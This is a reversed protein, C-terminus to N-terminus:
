ADDARHEAPNRHCVIVHQLPILTHMYIGGVCFDEGIIVYLVRM